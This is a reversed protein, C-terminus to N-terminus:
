DKACQYVNKLTESNDSTVPLHGATWGLIDTGLLLENLEETTLMQQTFERVNQLTGIQVSVLAFMWVARGTKETGLLL